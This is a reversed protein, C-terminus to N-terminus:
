RRRSEDSEGLVWKRWRDPLAALQGLKASGPEGPHRWARWMVVASGMVCFALWALLLALDLAHWHLTAAVGMVIAIALLGVFERPRGWSGRKRQDNAM